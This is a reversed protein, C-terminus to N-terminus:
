HTLINILGKSNLIKVLDMSTQNSNENKFSILPSFKTDNIIKNTYVINPENIYSAGMVVLPPVKNRDKNRSFEKLL